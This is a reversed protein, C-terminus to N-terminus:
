NSTCLLGTCLALTWHVAEFAILQFTEKISFGRWLSWSWSLCSSCVSRISFHAFIMAAFFLTKLKCFKLVPHLLWQLSLWHVLSAAAQLVLGRWPSGVFTDVELDTRDTLLLSLLKQCSFISCMLHREDPFSQLNTWKTEFEFFRLKTVLDFHPHIIM